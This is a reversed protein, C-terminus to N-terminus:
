IYDTPSVSFVNDDLSKLHMGFFNFEDWERPKSEFRKATEETLKRMEDNGVMAKDDVYIAMLGDVDEDNPKLYLASDGVLLVSKLDKRLHDHLTVNWYDGADPVGYIPTKLKLIENDGLAFFSRDHAKPLLYIDRTLEHENRLYAQRVDDAFIRFGKIAAVSVLIRTSSARLTTVNHVDSGKEKDKHGQAVYRANRDGQM